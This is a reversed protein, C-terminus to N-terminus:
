NGNGLTDVPTELRKYVGDKMTPLVLYGTIAHDGAWMDVEALLQEETEYVGFAELLQEADDADEIPAMLIEDLLRRSEVAEAALFEKLEELAIYQRM